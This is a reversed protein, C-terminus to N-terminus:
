SAHSVSEVVVSQPRSSPMLKQRLVETTRLCGGASSSTSMSKRRTAPRERASKYPGTSQSAPCWLNYELVSAVMFDNATKSETTVRASETRPWAATQLWHLHRQEEDIRSDTGLQRAVIYTATCHTIKAYLRSTCSCACSCVM